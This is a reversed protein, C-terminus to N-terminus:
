YNDERDCECCNLIKAEIGTCSKVSIVTTHLMENIHVKFLFFPKGYKRLDLKGLSGSVDRAAERSLGKMLNKVM